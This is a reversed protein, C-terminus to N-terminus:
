YLTCSNPSVKLNIKGLGLFKLDDGEHEGSPSDSEAHTSIRNCEGMCHLRAQTITIPRPLGRTGAAVM